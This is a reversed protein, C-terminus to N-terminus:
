PSLKPPLEQEHKPQPAHLPKMGLLWRLVKIRRICLEYFVLTAILATTSVLLFQIGININWTLTCFTIAVIIPYHLLYFPLIAENCYETVKNSFNLFHMGFYLVFSMWSWTMISLLLQYLVYSVSYGSTQQWSSLVGTMYAVLLILLSAIGIFLTFKWQKQIASAFRSDAFLIFGYVFICLWLFFDAWNQYGPFPVGLAIQIFALPLAFVFLGAPRDCFVALKSIFRRGRNRRLFLLIPLALLSIV